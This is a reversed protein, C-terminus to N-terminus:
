APPDSQLTQTLLTAENSLVDLFGSGIQFTQREGSALTVALRGPTLTTILPAHNALVGIHGDEGPVVIATVETNLVVRQPTIVTLHFNM